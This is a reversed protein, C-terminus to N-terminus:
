RRFRCYTLTRGRGMYECWSVAMRFRPLADHHPQPAWMWVTKSLTGVSSRQTHSGLTSTPPLDYGGMAADGLQSIRWAAATTSHVLPLLAAYEGVPTTSSGSYDASGLFFPPLHIQIQTVTRSPRGPPVDQPHSALSPVTLAATTPTQPCAHDASPTDPPPSTISHQDRPLSLTCGPGFRPPWVSYKCADCVPPPSQRRRNPQHHHHHHHHLHM